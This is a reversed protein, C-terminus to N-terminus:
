PQGGTEQNTPKYTALARRLDGIMRDFSRMMSKGLEFPKPPEVLARVKEIVAEAERLRTEAERLRTILALVTTPSVKSQFQQLKGVGAFTYSGLEGDPTAARAVAELADLDLTM